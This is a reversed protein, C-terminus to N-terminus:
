RCGGGMFEYKIEHRECESEFALEAGFPVYVNYATRNCTLCDVTEVTWQNIIALQLDSSLAHVRYLYKGTRRAALKSANAFALLDAALAECQAPTLLVSSTFPLAQVTLAYRGATPAHSTEISCGMDVKIHM